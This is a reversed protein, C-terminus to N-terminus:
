WFIGARSHEEASEANEFSSTGPINRKDTVKGDCKSTRLSEVAVRLVETVRGDCSFDIEPQLSEVAVGRILRDATAFREALVKRRVHSSRECPCNEKRLVESEECCTTTSPGIVSM